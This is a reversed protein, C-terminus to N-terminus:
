KRNRVFDLEIEVVEEMNKISSQMTRLSHCVEEMQMLYDEFLDEVQQIQASSPHLSSALLKKWLPLCMTNMNKNSKM